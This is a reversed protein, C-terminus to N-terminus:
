TSTLPSSVPTFPVATCSHSQWGFAASWCQVHLPVASVVMPRQRSTVLAPVALPTLTCSHSQLPVPAWCHAAWPSPESLFAFEPRQRSEGPPAVAFPVRRCIQSQLPVPACFNAIPVVGGFLPTQVPLESVGFKPGLTCM